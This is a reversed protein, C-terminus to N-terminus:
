TRRPPIHLDDIVLAFVRADSSHVTTAVAAATTVPGLAPVDALTMGADFRYADFAVIDQRKGNESVTFDAATLGRVFRGEADTVRVSVQVRTDETRFTPQRNPGLDTELALTPVGRTQPTRGRGSMIQAEGPLASLVFACVVLLLLRM